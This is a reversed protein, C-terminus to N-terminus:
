ACPSQEFVFPDEAPDSMIVDAIEGALDDPVIKRYGRFYGMLKLRHENLLYARTNGNIEEVVKGKGKLSPIESDLDLQPELPPHLKHYENASALAADFEEGSLYELARLKLELELEKSQDM